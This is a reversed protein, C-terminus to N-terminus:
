SWSGVPAPLQVHTGCAQCEYRVHEFHGDDHSESVRIRRDDVYLEQTRFAADVETIQDATCTPCAVSLGHRTSVIRAMPLEDTTANAANQKDTQNANAVASEQTLAGKASHGFPMTLCPSDSEAAIRMTPAEDDRLPTTYVSAVQGWALSRVLWTHGGDVSFLDGDILNAVQNPVITPPPIHRQEPPM